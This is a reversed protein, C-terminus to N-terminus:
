IVQNKQMVANATFIRSINTMCTDKCISKHTVCYEKDGTFPGM